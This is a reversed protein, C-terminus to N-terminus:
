LFGVHLLPSGTCGCNFSFFIGFKIPKRRREKMQWIRKCNKEFNERMETVAMPLLLSVVLSSWVLQSLDSRSLCGEYWKFTCDLIRCVHVERQFLFLSVSVSFLSTTALPPPSPRVPVQPHHPFRDRNSHIFLWARSYLVLFCMWDGPIFGLPFSCKIIYIYIYIPHPFTPTVSDSQM